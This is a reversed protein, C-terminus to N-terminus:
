LWPPLVRKAFLWLSAYWPSDSSFDFTTWRDPKVAITVETNREIEERAVREYGAAGVMGLYHLAMEHGLGQQEPEVRANGYAVVAKYPAREEQVCISVRPDRAVNLAKIADSATRFLFHGDRYFYWIPTPIPAGSPDITVLVAVHRGSLFKDRQAKSLRSPM